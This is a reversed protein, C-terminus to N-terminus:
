VPPATPALGGKRHQKAPAWGAAVGWGRLSPGPVGDSPAAREGSNDNPALLLPSWGQTETGRSEDEDAFEQSLGSEFRQETKNSGIPHPFLIQSVVVIDTNATKMSYKFDEETQRLQELDVGLNKKVFIRRSVESYFLQINPDKYFLTTKRGKVKLNQLYKSAEAVAEKELIGEDEDAVTTVQSSKQM